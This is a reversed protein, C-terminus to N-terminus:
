NACSSNSYLNSGCNTIQDSCNPKDPNYIGDPDSRLEFCGNPWQCYYGGCREGYDGGSSSGSSSDDDSDSSNEVPPIGTIWYATKAYDNLKNFIYKGSETMKTEDTWSTMDFPSGTGFFAAGEKKDVLSWACSSIKKSDM